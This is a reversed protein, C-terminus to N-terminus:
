FLHTFLAVPDSDNMTHFRSLPSFKVGVRSHEFVQTLQDIVELILRCRNEISGGYDDTRQNVGNRMFQDIIYGHAGHLEVGDFGVEKANEAAKRFNSILTKIDEHTAERPVVGPLTNGWGVVAVPSSSIPIVGGNRDPHSTRGGHWIQLFIKGGKDHVAQVVKKWGEQQEPTYFNASGIYSDGDQSIAACETIIMAASARNAYFETHLDNPARTDKDARGRGLAAM